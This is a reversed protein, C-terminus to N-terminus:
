MHMIVHSAAARDIRYLLMNKTDKKDKGSSEQLSMSVVKACRDSDSMSIELAFRFCSTLVKAPAIPPDTPTRPASEKPMKM